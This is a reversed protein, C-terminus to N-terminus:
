APRRRLRLMGVSAVVVGGVIGLIQKWGIGPFGGIGLRDAAASLLIILVGVILLVGGQTRASM